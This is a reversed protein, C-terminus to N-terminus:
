ARRSKPITSSRTASRCAAAPRCCGRAKRRRFRGSACASLRSGQEQQGGRHRPRRWLDGFITGEARRARRHLRGQRRHALRGSRGAAAGLRRRRDVDGLPRAHVVGDVGDLQLRRRRSARGQDAADSLAQHGRDGRPWRDPHQGQRRPIRRRLQPLLQDVADHQRQALRARRLRVHRGQRRHAKRRGRGDRRLNQSRRRGEEPVDGQQLLPHLLRGVVAAVADAGQREQRIAPGRGLLRKRRPGTRHPEPGEHLRVHRRALRGKRVAAEARSLEFSHRRLEAQGFRTRDRGEPAAAARPDTRIRGPHRDTRHIGQHEEASQRRASGQRPDGRAQHRCIEEM